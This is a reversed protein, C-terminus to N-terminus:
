TLTTIFINPLLIMVTNNSLITVIDNYDGLALHMSLPSWALRKIGMGINDDDGTGTYTRFLHGDATYILVKHGSSAADRVVLWCGDPSWSVEQADVTPLEISTILEHNGPNLLMLVDQAAPRTLVAMHGSRARYSYCHMMNKPDRIEVGRCTILSWLTLKVGFDSFVLIDNPNHGFTVDAIRGLGSAVRELVASWTPEDTDYVRVSDDDALLIRYCLWRIQGNGQQKYAETRKNGHGFWRIFRCRAAFGSPLAISRFTTCTYSSIVLSSQQLSAIFAGDPSPLSHQASPAGNALM